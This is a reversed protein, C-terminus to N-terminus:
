GQVQVTWQSKFKKHPRPHCAHSPLLKSYTSPRLLEKYGDCSQSVFTIPMSYCKRLKGTPCGRMGENPFTVLLIPKSNVFIIIGKQIEIGIKDM